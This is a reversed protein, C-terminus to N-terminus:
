PRGTCSSAPTSAVARPDFMTIDTLGHKVLWLSLLRNDVQFDPGSLVIMDIAIRGKLGDLLSEVLEEPNKNLHYAGYIMNVGLIGIAQQQLQNDNDLMRAHLLMDNAGGNPTLQFRLGLWGNGRITRSYNIAAVTDAFVFFNTDPRDHRLRDMMLDYEHDVM